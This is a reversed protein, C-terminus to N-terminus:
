YFCMMWQTDQPEYRMESVRNIKSSSLQPTGIIGLALVFHFVSELSFKKKKRKKRDRKTVTRTWEPRRIAVRQMSVSESDCAEVQKKNRTCEHLIVKM